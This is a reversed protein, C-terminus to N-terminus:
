EELLIPFASRACNEGGGFFARDQRSSTIATPTDVWWVAVGVFDCLIEKKEKPLGLLMLIFVM